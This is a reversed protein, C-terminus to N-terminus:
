ISMAIRLYLLAVCRFSLAQEASQNLFINAL